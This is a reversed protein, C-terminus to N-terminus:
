VHSYTETTRPQQTSISRCIYEQSPLDPARSSTELEAKEETGEPLKTADEAFCWGRYLM